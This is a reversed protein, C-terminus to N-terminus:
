RSPRRGIPDPHPDAFGRPNLCKHIALASAVAEIAPDLRRKIERVVESEDKWPLDIEDRRRWSIWLVGDPKAEKDCGFPLGVIANHPHRPKM